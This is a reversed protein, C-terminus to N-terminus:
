RRLVVVIAYIGVALILLGLVAVPVREYMTARAGTGIRWWYSSRLVPADPKAAIAFLVAALMIILIAGVIAM